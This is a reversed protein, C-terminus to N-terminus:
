TVTLILGLDQGLVLKPNPNANPKSNPKTNTNIVIVIVFKQM